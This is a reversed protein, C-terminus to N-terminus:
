RRPSPTVPRPATVAPPPLPPSRPRSAGRQGEGNVGPQRLLGAEQGSGGAAALSPAGRRRGGGGTGPPARPPGPGRTAPPARPASRRPAWRCGAPARLCPRPKCLPCPAHCPPQTPQPSEVAGSNVYMHICHLNSTGASAGKLLTNDRKKHPTPSNHLLLSVRTAQRGTFGVLHPIHLVAGFAGQGASSDKEYKKEFSVKDCSAQM